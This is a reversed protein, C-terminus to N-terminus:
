PSPRPALTERVLDVVGQDPTFGLDYCPVCEAVTHWLELLRPVAGEMFLPIISLTMLRAVSESPTLPTLSNRRGHRIFFIGAPPATLPSVRNDEGHWPSSGAFPTGNRLIVVNREDNMLTAGAHHWLRAMTTKGTGSAGSFLIARGCDLVGCAHLITGGLVSLRGSILVRDYPAHFVLLRDDMGQHRRARLTGDSMDDSLDAVTRWAGSLIDMLDVLWRTGSDRRIRIGSEEWIVAPQEPRIVEDPVGVVDYSADPDTTELPTLFPAYPPPLSLAIGPPAKLAFTAGALSVTTQSM